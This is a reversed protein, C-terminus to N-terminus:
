RCTSVQLFECGCECMHQVLEDANECACKGVRAWEWACMHVGVHMTVCMSVPVCVNVCMNACAHLPGM